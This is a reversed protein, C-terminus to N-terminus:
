SPATYQINSCFECSGPSAGGCNSRFKGATLCVQCPSCGTNQAGESFTLPDCPKCAALGGVDTFTGAGCLTCSPAGAAAAKGAPCMNCELPGRLRNQEDRVEGSGVYGANCQYQCPIAGDVNTLFASNDISPKGISASACEKLVCGGAVKEYNVKCAWACGTPSTGGNSSYEANSPISNTCMSNCNGASNRGCDALYYGIGCLTPAANANCETIPCNGPGSTSFGGHGSYWRNIGNQLAPGPYEQQRSMQLGGALFVGLLLLRMLNRAPPLLKFLGLGKWIQEM